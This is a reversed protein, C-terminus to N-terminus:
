VDNEGLLYSVSPGLANKYEEPLTELNLSTVLTEPDLGQSSVSSMAAQIAISGVKTTDNLISSSFEQEVTKTALRATTLLVDNALKSNIETPNIMGNSPLTKGISLNPNPLTTIVESKSLVPEINSFKIVERSGYKVWTMEKNYRVCKIEDSNNGDDVVVTQGHIKESCKPLTSRFYVPSSSMPVWGWEQNEDKRCVMTMQRYNRDETFQITEGELEKSCKPLPNEDIIVNGKGVEKPDGSGEVILGKTLSKWYWVDDEPDEQRNNRRLCIKLDQSVNDSFIYVKGENSENCKVGPDNIFQPVSKDLSPVTLPTSSIMENNYIGLVVPDNLNGSICGIICSSDILQASVVGGGGNIIPIWETKTNTEDAGYVVRVRGKNEPDNVDSIVGAQLFPESELGGLRDTLIDFARQTEKIKNIFSAQEM